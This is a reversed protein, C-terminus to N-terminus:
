PIPRVPIGAGAALPPYGPAGWYGGPPYYGYGYWASSPVGECKTTGGASACITAQATGAAPSPLILPASALAGVILASCLTRAVNRPRKM